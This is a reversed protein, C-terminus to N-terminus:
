SLQPKAPVAPPGGAAPAHVVASRALGPWHEVTPTATDALPRDISLLAAAAAVALATIGALCLLAFSLGGAAVAWKVIWVGLSGIGVTLASKGGFATARWRVPMYQAFLSNEIPQMAFSCFAFLAAGGLLPMGYLASMLLLSPLALAHCAFYLRRQDHRDAVFDGVYRGGIGLLYALSTAAGFGLESVRAALYGPMILTSGRYTIAALAAAVLLLALPLRSRRQQAPGPGPPPAVAREDIRLFACAVALGCMVYGVLRYTAQWGVRQCLVATILPTLAIAANGFVGSVTSARGRAATTRSILSMGAPHYISACAGMAALCFSLVRGDPAESAALSAVGLGFLGVVLLLRNGIRGGLLGAPLAGLGFLLYGLFSWGLVEDLPARTRLALAVALTPFMLEFFHTSFHGVGTLILVNRSNQEQSPRAMSM